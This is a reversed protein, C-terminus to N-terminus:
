VNFIIESLDKRTPIVTSKEAVGITFFAMPIYSYPLNLVDKVIDGAFLPACYWCSALGKAELALIFYIASASVSQVGMIYEFQKRESDGYEELEETDLCLLVLGPATLFKERRSTTKQMIFSQAKGDKELDEKLRFNMKDILLERTSNKELIIYRWHQSNHASPAYRAIDICEELIKRGIEESKFELKYSRRSKLHNTIIQEEDVTRFVDTSKDRLIQKVSADKSFEFKYGRIIIVPLGEDAEGMILQAASALNDIQGVITTELIRGCLDKKGRMDLLADIGSVGVAVGVSGRRFPRGFSDSIIVAVNQQSLDKLQMRIEEAEKDSDRPLLTVKDKGDVNSKDIGANACIFGQKTEVIIVHETKIIEKSEDIIAQVLEPSKTSVEIGQAKEVLKNYIQYAHESPNIEKLNKVYGKSKSIISQAIVLIDGEKLSMNNIKLSQTIIEAINDEKKIFPINKIGILKIQSM